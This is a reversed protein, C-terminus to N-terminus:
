NVVHVVLVDRPVLGRWPTLVDDADVIPGVAADSRVGVINHGNLHLALLGPGEATTESGAVGIGAACAGPPRDRRERELGRGSASLCRGLVAM